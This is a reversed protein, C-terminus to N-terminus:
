RPAVRGDGPPGVPEPSEVSDELRWRSFTPLLRDGHGVCVEFAGNRAVGEEHGGVLCQLSSAVQSLLPEQGTGGAAVCEGALVTLVPFPLRCASCARRELCSHDHVAWFIGSAEIAGHDDLPEIHAAPDVCGRVPEEQMAMQNALSCGMDAHRGLLGADIAPPEHGTHREFLRVGLAIPRENVRAVGERIVHVALDPPDEARAIRTGETCELGLSHDRDTLGLGGAKQHGVDVGDIRDLLAEVGEQDM